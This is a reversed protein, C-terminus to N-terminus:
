KVKNPAPKIIFYNLFYLTRTVFKMHRNELFIQSNKLIEQIRVTQKPRYHSLKGKVINKSSTRFNVLYTAYFEINIILPYISEILFTPRIM